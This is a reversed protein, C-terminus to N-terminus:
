FKILIQVGFTSRMTYTPLVIPQISLSLDDGVDFNALHADVSADMINFLYVVGIFIYTLDRNRRYRDKYEKLKDMYATSVEQSSTEDYNLSVYEDLYKNYLRNNRVSLAYLGGFLGYIIPIKWIKRNYAQGLGPLVTSFLSAKLPSHKSLWASDQLTNSVKALNDIPIFKNTSDVSIYSNLSDRSIYTGKYLIKTTDKSVVITDNKNKDIQGFTSITFSINIIILILLYKSIQWM